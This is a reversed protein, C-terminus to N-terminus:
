NVISSQQHRSQRLRFLTQLHRHPRVEHSWDIQCAHQETQQLLGRFCSDDVHRGLCVLEVLHHGGFRSFIEQTSFFCGCIVRTESCIAFRLKSVDVECLCQRFQQLQLLLVVHFHHCEM